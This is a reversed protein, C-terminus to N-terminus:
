NRRLFDAIANAAKRQAIENPHQDTPHVWQAQARDGKYVDLLDIHEIHAKECVSDVIKHQASLPYGGDLGWLVPFVAVVLRVNRQQTYDKFGGLAQSLRERGQADFSDRISRFFEDQLRRARSRRQFYAMVASYKALGSQPTDRHIEDNIRITERTDMLDNMFFALIVVDPDFKEIRVGYWMLCDLLGYGQVGVNLTEVRQADLGGSENLRRSLVVPWTDEYRVGEGFTFSDGLCAIRLVGTPKRVSPAPGRFGFENISYEIRGSPGFYERTDASPDYISAFQSNPIYELRNGPRVVFPVGPEIRRPKVPRPGWVRFGCEVLVLGVITSGLLLAAVRRRRRPRSPMAVVRTGDDTRATNETM